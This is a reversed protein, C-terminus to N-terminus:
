FDFSIMERQPPVVPIRGDKFHGNELFFKYAETVEATYEEPKGQSDRLSAADPPGNPFNIRVFTKNDQPHLYCPHDNVYNVPRGKWMILRKTQPDTRTEGQLQPIPNLENSVNPKIFANPGANANQVPVGQAAAPQGFPSPAAAPQSPAGFPSPASTKAAPAGFPNTNAPPFSSPQSPQLQSPQGFGGPASPAGFPAAPQQALGAQGFPSAAPQAAPQATNQGFPSPGTVGSSQGFGGAVPKQQSFQAFPSAAAPAGFPTNTTGGLTSPKGFPSPNAAQQGLSTQGFAPKNLASQGGLASPQGFGSGGMSSPKGFASPQGFASTQSQASAGGLGSPQGFASIQPQAPATGLGSPQGFATSRGFTSSPAAFAGPAPGANPTSNTNQQGFPSPQSPAIPQSFSSGQNPTANAKGEIIDFINPHENKGDIVYKAAGQPDNLAADTQQVCEAWLSSAEQVAENLKGAAALEYHRLRMEEVSRERHPGGFLLRPVDKAPAYASFIWEPRGKQVTLDDKINAATM